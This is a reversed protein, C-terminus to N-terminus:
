ASSLYQPYVPFPTPFKMVIFLTKFLSKQVKEQNIQYAHHYRNLM